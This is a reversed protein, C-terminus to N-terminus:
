VFGRLHLDADTTGGDPSTGHCFNPKVLCDGSGWFVEGVIAM